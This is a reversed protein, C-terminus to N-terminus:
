GQITISPLAGGGKGGATKGARGRRKKPPPPEDPMVGGVIAVAAGARGKAAKAVVNGERPIGKEAMLEQLAQINALQSRYRQIKDEDWLAPNTKRDNAAQREMYALNRQLGEAIKDGTLGSQAIQDAFGQRLRPVDEVMRGIEPFSDPAFVVPEVPRFDGSPYLLVYNDTGRVGQALVAVEEGTYPDDMRDTRAKIGGYDRLVSELVAAQNYPNKGRIYLPQGEKVESFAKKVTRRASNGFYDKPLGAVFSKLDLSADAM